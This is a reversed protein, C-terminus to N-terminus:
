RWRRQANREAPMPFRSALTETRSSRAAAAEASAQHESARMAIDRFFEPKNPEYRDRDLVSVLRVVESAFDHKWMVDIAALGEGIADNKARM